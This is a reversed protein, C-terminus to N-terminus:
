LKMKYLITTKGASELGILLLRFDTEHKTFISLLSSFFSGM